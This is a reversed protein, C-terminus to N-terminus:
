DLDGRLKTNAEEVERQQGIQRECTDTVSKLEVKIVEIERDRKNLTGEM